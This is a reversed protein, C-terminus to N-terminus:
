CTCSSRKLGQPDLWHYYSLQVANAGGKGCDSIYWLALNYWTMLEVSDKPAGFWSYYLGKWLTKARSMAEWRKSVTRGILLTEVDLFSFLECLLEPPLGNMGLQNVDM